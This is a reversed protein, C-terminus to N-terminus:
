NANEKRKKADPREPISAPWRSVAADMTYRTQEQNTRNSYHTKEGGETQHVRYHQALYVRNANRPIFYMFFYSDLVHRYRRQPKLESVTSPKGRWDVRGLDQEGLEVRGTESHGPSRLDRLGLRTPGNCLVFEPQMNGRTESSQERRPTLRLGDVARTALPRFMRREVSGCSPKAKPRLQLRLGKGVWRNLDSQCCFSPEQANIKGAAQFCSTLSFCVLGILGFFLLTTASDMSSLGM